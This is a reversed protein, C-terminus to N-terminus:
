KFKRGHILVTLGFKPLDMMRGIRSPQKVLRYMWEINHKIYFDPAREATGALVDITGGVGMCVNVDLEDRHSYIWKEQKPAGLCVFLVNPKKENIDAVIHKEKESDFYGDATGVVQLGPYRQEVTEKAKEAVGPKSGFFYVTKGEKACKELVRCAVDFGACREAIPNKLIKAAYVVGIGDATLFAATNLIDCFEKDRYAKMLIESNPTFVYRCKENNKVMEIIKDSAQEINYKDIKAGLINVKDM